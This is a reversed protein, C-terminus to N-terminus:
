VIEYFTCYHDYTVFILGDNSWVIRHLNRRGPTYNIDAEYWVRGPKVPLKRDKNDYVDGGLMRGTVYQSPRENRKWGLEALQEPSIYYEPLKGYFKLWYDAGEKEKYTARGAKISEAEMLQCKCKFHLPPKVTTPDNIPIIRRHNNACDVCTTPSLSSIWMKYNASLQTEPIFIDDRAKEIIITTANHYNIKIHM